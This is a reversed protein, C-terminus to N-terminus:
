QDNLQGADAAPATTGSETTEGSAGPVAQSQQQQQQRVERQQSLQLECRSQRHREVLHNFSTDLWHKVDAYTVIIVNQSDRSVLCLRETSGAEM